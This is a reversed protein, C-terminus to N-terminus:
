EDPKELAGPIMRLYERITADDVRAGNVETWQQIRQAVGREYEGRANPVMEDKRLLAAVIRLLCRVRRSEASSHQRAPVTEAVPKTPISSQWSTELEDGFPFLPWNSGAWRTVFEPVYKRYAAPSSGGNSGQGVNFPLDSVHADILARAAQQREQEQEASPTQTQGPVIGALLNAAEEFTWLPRRMWHRRTQEDIAM